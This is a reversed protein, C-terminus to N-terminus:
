FPQNFDRLRQDNRDYEAWYIVDRYDTKAAGIFHLLRETDGEALHIICRVVRLQENGRYEDLQSQLTALQENPFAGELRKVIDAPFWIRDQGTM